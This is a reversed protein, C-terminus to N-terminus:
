DARGSKQEAPPQMPQATTMSSREVTREMTSGTVGMSAILEKSKQYAYVGCIAGMAAHYLGGGQLTLSRWEHFEGGNAYIAAYVGPFIIFDFFCVVMYQVAMAPRWWRKIFAESEDRRESKGM